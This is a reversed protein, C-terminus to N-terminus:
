LIKTYCNEEHKYSMKELLDGATRKLPRATDIFRNLKMHYMVKVVGLEKLRKEAERILSVGYGRSGPDVYIIDNTAHLTTRYHIHPQIFFCNYGVLFGSRYLALTKFNGIKELARYRDWDMALPILDPDQSIEEWHAAQLDEWGDELLKDIPTWEIKIM